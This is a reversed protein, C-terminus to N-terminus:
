RRLYHPKESKSNKVSIEIREEVILYMINELFIVKFGYNFTM